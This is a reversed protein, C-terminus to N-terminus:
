DRASDISNRLSEERPLQTRRESAELTPLDEGPKLDVTGEEFTGAEPVTEMGAVRRLEVDAQEDLHVSFSIPGVELVDGPRLLTRGEIQEENIFTGNLSGLDEVWVEGDEIKLVCHRRSVEPSLIRVQCDRHRGVVTEVTGLLVPEQQLEGKEVVLTVTM